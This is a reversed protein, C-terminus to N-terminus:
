GGESLGADGPLIAHLYGGSLTRTLASLMQSWATPLSSHCIGEREAKEVPGEEGGEM